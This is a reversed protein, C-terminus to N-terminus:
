PWTAKILDSGREAFAYTPAMTHGSIVFPMVSADIVRIGRAKKLLLDPDVVGWLAGRPSMSATGVPHQNCLVSERIYAEMATDSGSNLATSLSGLPQMVYGEWAPASLFLLMRKLAYAMAQLDFPEAFIKPDIVPLNWPSPDTENLTVSGRSASSVVAAQISLFHGGGAPIPTELGIGATFELEIHPTNPGAAPDKFDRLISSNNPLRLFAVHASSSSVLPGTKTKNWEGLNINLQTANLNYTEYSLTTNAFWSNSVLRQETMNQGVSPLDVLPTIGIRKLTTSNGIGSQLLIQPTSLSGTSLIVEKSATVTHLAKFDQSFEVRNIHIPSGETRSKAPLVRTVQTNVLVDLNRRNIFREALYSSASSSRMGGGITTQTWALGIPNGGNYDEIFPFDNPLQKTTKIVLPFIPWAYGPLSVPNMGKTSHFKPNFQGRTDHNDAPPSWKENKFFYPMMADWGWGPDGSVKAFRNFDDASGRTYWMENIGTSGGLMKGRPFGPVRNNAGPQPVTNYKWTYPSTPAFLAGALAPVQEDLIGLNSLGAEIVLVSWLANESVRNAVVNGAAGGLQLEDLGRATRSAPPELGGILLM